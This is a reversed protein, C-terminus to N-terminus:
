KPYTKEVRQISVNSATQIMTTLGGNYNVTVSGGGDLGDPTAMIGGPTTNGENSALVAGEIYVNGNLGVQQRAAILGQVNLGGGTGSMSIDRSAMATINGFYPTVTKNGAWDLSGGDVFFTASLTGSGGGTIKLDGSVYWIKNQAPMGTGLKWGQPTFDWGSFSAGPPDGDTWVITNAADRITGDSKLYFTNSPDATEYDAPNINPSPMVFGSTTTGSIGPSGNLTMVGNSHVNGSTGTVNFGSSGGLTMQGDSQLAATPSFFPPTFFVRAEIQRILTLGTGNQADDWIATVRIFLTRDNDVLANNDESTAEENDYVVVHYAGGRFPKCQGFIVFDDEAPDNATPNENSIGANDANPDARYTAFETTAVMAQYNTRVAAIQAEIPALVPDSGSVTVPFYRPGPLLLGSGANTALIANWQERGPDTPFPPIVSDYKQSSSIAARYVYLARRARELGARCIIMGEDNERESNAGKYRFVVETMLAAAIAALILIVVVAIIMASGQQRRKVM